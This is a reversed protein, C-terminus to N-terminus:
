HLYKNRNKCVMVRFYLNFFLIFIQLSYYKIKDEEFPYSQNILGCLLFFSYNISLSIHNSLQTKHCILGQLNNLIYTFVPNLM